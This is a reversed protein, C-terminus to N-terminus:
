RPKVEEKEAPEDEEEVFDPVEEEEEEDDLKARKEKQELTDQVLIKSDTLNKVIVDM